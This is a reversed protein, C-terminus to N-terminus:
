NGLPETVTGLSLSKFVTRCLLRDEPSAGGWGMFSLVDRTDQFGKAKRQSLSKIRDGCEDERFPDTGPDM